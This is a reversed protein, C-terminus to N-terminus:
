KKDDPQTVAEDGERDLERLRESAIEAQIDRKRLGRFETAFKRAAELEKDTLNNKRKKAFIAFFLVEGQDRVCLVTRFGGSRGQGRRAIREKFLGGGLNATANGERVREAAEIFKEDPIKYKKATKSLSKTILDSM